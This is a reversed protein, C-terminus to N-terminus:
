RRKRRGKQPIYASGDGKFRISKAWEVYELAERMSDAEMKRYAKANATDENEFETQNLEYALSVNAAFTTHDWLIEIQEDSLGKLAKEFDNHGLQDLMKQISSNRGERREVDKEGTAWKQADETLMRLRSLDRIDSSSRHIEAPTNSAPNAMAVNRPVLIEQQQKVTMGGPTVLDEISERKNRVVENRREEATKYAKWERAEIPRGQSNPVYQVARDLFSALDNRYRSREAPSMAEIEAAPRRPDYKTGAVEVGLERRLRSAKNNANKQLRRTRPDLAM